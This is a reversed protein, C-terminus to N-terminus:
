KVCTKKAVDKPLAKKNVLISMTKALFYPESVYFFGDFVQNTNWSNKVKYYRNGKQDRAIGVIEMGHDDTTEQADFMQQRSEQTVEIEEVPGSFDFKKNQREKDSLKVWRALETGDMDGETKGKPMLAVGKDWKFGGESVDAAWVVTYGNELANDVTAKLEDLPVNMYPAWLWNDAVEIVFPEYFPHHTFSTLAIYNDPDLGLSKAFSQPTYTKGKYEFTEPLKGLYADLIGELGARWATSVRKNPKSVITKVYAALVGDLEGHVHGDEGYEIGHYVEEPVVGYRKWVYPVDLISGGASFNTGGYMRVYRDAKDSYCHWVTFMESLDLSDGGAKRIEDEFFSTGAFCWCTGSKNQDKVSTTPLSIIDTFSFKEVTDTAASDATEHAHALSVNGSIGSAALAPLTAAAAIVFISAKNM